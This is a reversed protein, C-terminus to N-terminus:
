LGLDHRLNNYYQRTNDDLLKKYNNAGQKKLQMDLNRKVGKSLNKKVEEIAKDPDYEDGTFIKYIDAYTKDLGIYALVGEINSTVVTTWATASAATTGGGAAAVAGGAAATGGGTAITVGVAAAAIPVVLLADQGFEADKQNLAKQLGEMNQIANHLVMKQSISLNDVNENYGLVENVALIRSCNISICFSRIDEQLDRQLVKMDFRKRFLNKYFAAEEEENKFMCRARNWYSDVDDEAFQTVGSNVYNIMKANIAKELEANAKLEFQEAQWVFYSLKVMQESTLGSYQSRYDRPVKINGIGENYNYFYPSVNLHTPVSTLGNIDDIYSVLVKISDNFELPRRKVLANGVESVGINVYQSTLPLNQAKTYLQWLCESASKGVKSVPIIKGDTHLSFVSDIVQFLSADVSSKEQLYSVIDDESVTLRYSLETVNYGESYLQSLQQLSSAADPEEGHCSMLLITSAVILGYRSM